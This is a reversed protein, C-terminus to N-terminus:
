AVQPLVVVAYRAPLIKRLYCQLLFLDKPTTQLRDGVRNTGARFPNIATAVRVYLQGDLAGLRQGVRNLGVRFPTNYTVSAVYGLEACLAVIVGPAAPSSDTYPLRVGRLKALLVARRDAETQDPGFCPDPLGCAAEWEPLRLTTRHPLWQGATADIFRHLEAFSAGISRLVAMLVSRPARPWAYGTPLLAALAQTLKDLLRDPSAM